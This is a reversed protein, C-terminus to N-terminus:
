GEPLEPIDVPPTWEGLPGIKLRRVYNSYVSIGGIILIINYTDQPLANARYVHRVGTVRSIARSPFVIPEPLAIGRVNGLFNPSGTGRIVGTLTPSSVTSVDVITLSHDLESTIYAYDGSVVIGFANQLYNPSGAGSITGGSVYAINTPDSIDYISMADGTYSVCYAYNGKVYVGRIDDMFQPSGGLGAVSAVVPSAPSSVDIAMLVNDDRACVYVYKPPFKKNIGAHVGYAGELYNPAGGGFVSGLYGAEVPVAPDSIDVVSFSGDVTGFRATVYTYDGAVSVGSAGNLSSAQQYAGKLTPNTPDSVNIITLADDAASTVYAYDGLVDIDWASNLFNPSGAGQISGSFTPNTPNSIDIITLADDNICALYAYKGKVVISNAGGLYNPSGTGYIGGAYTPTTPDTVDIVTLGHDVISTLYAYKAM